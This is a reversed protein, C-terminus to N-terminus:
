VRHFTFGGVVLGGAGVWGVLPLKKGGGPLCAEEYGSWGDSVNWSRLCGVEDGDQEVGQLTLALRKM